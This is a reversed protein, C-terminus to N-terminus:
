GAAGLHRIAVGAHVLVGDGRAVRGVLDVAVEHRAAGADACIANAGDLAIVTMAIGEDGCTICHEDTAGCAEGETFGPSPQPVAISATSQWPSSSTSARM